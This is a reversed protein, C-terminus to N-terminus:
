FNLSLTQKQGRRDVEVTLSSSTTLQNLVNGMQAPDIVSIGNVATIIDGAELGLENFLQPESGPNMRYGVMKGELMVPSVRAFRMVNQPNSLLQKRLEAYNYDRRGAPSEETPDAGNAPAGGKGNAAAAASAPKPKTTDHAAAAPATAPKAAPTPNTARTKPKQEGEHVISLTEQKGNRDLIIYDNHIAVVKALNNISDGVRYLKELSGRQEAVAALREGQDSYLVGNLFLNLTTEQVEEVVVVPPPPPPPEVVPKVKTADGFLHLAVVSGLEAKPAGSSPQLDLPPPPEASPASYSQPYFWQWTMRSASNALFLLMVVVVWQRLHNVAQTISYNM